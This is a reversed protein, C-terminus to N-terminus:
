VDLWAESAGDDLWAQLDKANAPELAGDATQVCVGVAGTRLRVHIVPRPAEAGEDAPPSGEIWARIEDATPARTLNQATRVATVSAVVRGAAKFDYIRIPASGASVASCTVGLTQPSASM